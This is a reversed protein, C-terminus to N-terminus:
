PRAPSVPESLRPSPATPPAPPRRPRRHSEPGIVGVGLNERDLERNEPTPSDQKKATVGVAVMSAPACADFASLEGRATIKGIVGACQFGVPLAPGEATAGIVLTEAMRAERPSLPIPACSKVVELQGEKRTEYANSGDPTAVRYVVSKTAAAVKPLVAVYGMGAITRMELYHEAKANDSRFYLRAGAAGGRWVIRANSEAAICEAAPTPTVAPAAYGIAAACLAAALLASVRFHCTM